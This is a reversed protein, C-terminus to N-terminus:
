LVNLGPIVKVYINTNKNFNALKENLKNIKEMTEELMKNPEFFNERGLKKSAIKKKVDILYSRWKNLNSLEYIYYFNSKGNKHKKSNARQQALKFYILQKNKRTLDSLAINLLDNKNKKKSSLLIDIQEINKTISNEINEKAMLLTEIKILKINSFPNVKIWLSKLLKIIRKKM